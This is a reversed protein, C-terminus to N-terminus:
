RSILSLFINYFNSLGFRDLYQQIDITGGYLGAGSPSMEKGSERGSLVGVLRGDSRRFLGGGSRGEAPAGSAVINNYYSFKDINKIQSGMRCTPNAGHTCGIDFVSEGVRPIEPAVKTASIGEFAPFRVIALDAKFNDAQYNIVQGQVTRVKQANTDFIEINVVGQGRSDRFVHGASILYADKGKIGIITGTGVSTGTADNISVRVTSAMANQQANGAPQIREAPPGVPNTLPPAIERGRSDIAELNGRVRGPDVTSPQVPSGEPNVAVANNTIKGDVIGSQVILRRGEQSIYNGANDLPIVTAKYNSSSAFSEVNNGLIDSIKAGEKFFLDNGQKKFGIGEGAYFLGDGQIRVTPNNGGVVSVGGGAEPLIASGYGNFPNGEGLEVYAGMKNNTSFSSIFKQNADIVVGAVGEKIMARAEPTAASERGFFLVSEKNANNYTEGLNKVTLLKGDSGPAAFTVTGQTRFTGDSNFILAGGQSTKFSLGSAYGAKRALEDPIQSYAEQSIIKFSPNYGQIDEEESKKKEVKPMQLKGGKEGMTLTYDVGPQKTLKAGEPVEVTVKKDRGDVTVETGKGDEPKVGSVKVEDIRGHENIKVQSNDAVNKFENERSKFYGKGPTAKGDLDALPTDKGDKDTGAAKYEGGKVVDGEKHPPNDFRGPGLKVNEPKAQKGNDDVTTVQGIDLPKKEDGPVSFHYENTKSYDTTAATGTDRTGPTTGGTGTTPPTATTGTTSGPRTIPVLDEAIVSFIGVIIVLFILLVLFKKGHYKLEM